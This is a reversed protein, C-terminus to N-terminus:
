TITLPIKMMAMINRRSHRDQALRVSKDVLFKPAAGSRSYCKDIRTSRMRRTRFSLGRGFISFKPSIFRENRGLWKYAPAFHSKDKSERLLQTRRLRHCIARKGTTRPGCLENLMITEKGFYLRKQNKRVIVTTRNDKVPMAQSQIAKFPKSHSQIAKFPKSHRLNVEISKLQSQDVREISRKRVKM